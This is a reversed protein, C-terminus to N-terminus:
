RRAEAKALAADMDALLCDLGAVHLRASDDLTDLDPVMDGTAEDWQCVAACEIFCEREAAVLERSRSLASALEGVLGKTQATVFHRVSAVFLEGADGARLVDDCDVTGDPNITLLPLAKEGVIVLGIASGGRFAFSVGPTM